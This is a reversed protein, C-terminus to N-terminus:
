GTSWAYSYPGIGANIIFLTQSSDAVPSDLIFGDCLANDFPCYEYNV